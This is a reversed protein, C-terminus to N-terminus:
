SSRVCKMWRLVTFPVVHVRNNQGFVQSLDKLGNGKECRVEWGDALSQARGLFADWVQRKEGDRRHAGHVLGGAGREQAADTAEQGMEWHRGM